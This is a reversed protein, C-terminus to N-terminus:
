NAYTCRAITAADGLRIVEAKSDWVCYPPVKRFALADNLGFWRVLLVKSSLRSVRGM